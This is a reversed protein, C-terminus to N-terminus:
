EVAATRQLELSSQDPMVGDVLPSREPLRREWLERLLWYKTHPSNRLIHRRAELYKPVQLAAM